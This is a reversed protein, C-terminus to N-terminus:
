PNKEEAEEEVEKTVISIDIINILGVLLLVIYPLWYKFEISKLAIVSEHFTDFVMYAVFWILALWLLYRVGIDVVDKWSVRFTWNGKGAKKVRSVRCVLNIVTLLVLFGQAIYMINIKGM